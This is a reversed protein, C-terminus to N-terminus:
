SKIWYFAEPRAININQVPAPNRRLCHQSSELAQPKALQICALDFPVPHRPSVQQGNRSANERISQQNSSKRTCHLPPNSLGLLEVTTELNQNPQKQPIEVLKETAYSTRIAIPWQCKQLRKALAPRTRNPSRRSEKINM